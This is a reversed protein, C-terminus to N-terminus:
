KFDKQFASILAALFGDTAEQHARVQDLFDRFTIIGSMGNGWNDVVSVNAYPIDLECALTAESAMNMGVVDAFSSFFRIEAPTEFRPGRTQLYVGGFHVPIGLQNCIDRLRIRLTEDLEPTVHIRNHLDFTPIDTLQIFDEPILFTGPPIDTSLSGVSTIGIIRDVELFRFAELNGRHDIRHPPNSGDPGHRPIIHVKMSRHSFVTISGFDTEVTSKTLDRLVSSKFLNTGGIIGLSTMARVDQETHM